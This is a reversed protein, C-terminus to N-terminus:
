PSSMAVKRATLVWKELNWKLGSFEKQINRRRLKLQLKEKIHLSEETM